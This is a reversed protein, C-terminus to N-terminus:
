QRTNRLMTELENARANSVDALCKARAPAWLAGGVGRTRQVCERDRTVIWARQADRLGRVMRPDKAGPSAGEKQRLARILAQYVSNLRTDSIAIHAAICARQNSLTPSGCPGAASTDNGGSPRSVARVPVRPVRPVRPPAPEPTGRNGNSAPTVPISTPTVPTIASDTKATGTVQAMGVAAAQSDAVTRSQMSKLQVEALDRALATDGGADAARSRCAGAAIATAAAGFIFSRKLTRYKM